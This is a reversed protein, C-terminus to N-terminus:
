LHTWTMGTSIGLWTGNIGSVMRYLDPVDSAQLLSQTRTCLHVNNNAIVQYDTDLVWATQIAGFLAWNLGLFVLLIMRWLSATQSCCVIRLLGWLAFCCRGFNPWWWNRIALPALVHHAIKGAMSLCYRDIYIYKLINTQKNTRLLRL